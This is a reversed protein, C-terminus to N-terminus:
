AEEGTAVVAEGACVGAEEACVGTVAVAKQILGVTVALALAEQILVIEAM